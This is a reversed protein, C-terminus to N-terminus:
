SICVTAEYDAIDLLNGQFGAYASLLTCVHWLGHSHITYDFSGPWYREPFRTTNFLGGLLIFIGSLFHYVFAPSFGVAMLRPVFIATGLVARVLCFSGLFLARERATTVQATFRIVALSFLLFGAWVFTPLLTWCRYGRAIFSHSM